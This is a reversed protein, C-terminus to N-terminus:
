KYKVVFPVDVDLLITHCEVTAGPSTTKTSRLQWTDIRCAIVMVPATGTNRMGVRFLKPIMPGIGSSSNRQSFMSFFIWAFGKARSTLAFGRTSVNVWLVYSPM